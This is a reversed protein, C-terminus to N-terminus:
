VTLKTEGLEQILEGFYLCFLVHEGDLYIRQKEHPPLELLEEENAFPALIIAINKTIKSIRKLLVDSAPKTNSNRFKYDGEGDIINWDPDLIASDINKCKELIKDDLSSGLIFDVKDEGGSLHLNYKAQEQNKESIDISIIKKAVKALSITTFGAGTCTELVVRNKFRESIRSTIRIDIGMIFTHEDVSYNDGFKQYIKKSNMKAM